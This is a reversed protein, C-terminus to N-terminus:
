ITLLQSRSLRSIGGLKSKDLCAIKSYGKNKEIINLDSDMELGTMEAIKRVAKSLKDFNNTVSVANDAITNIAKNFTIKSNDSIYASDQACFNFADTTATTGSMSCASSSVDGNDYMSMIEPEYARDFADFGLSENGNYRAM